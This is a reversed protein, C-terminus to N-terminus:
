LAKDVLNLILKLDVCSLSVLLILIIDTNTAKEIENKARVNRGGLNM